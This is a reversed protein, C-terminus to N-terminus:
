PQLVRFVPDMGTRRRRDFISLLKQRGFQISYVRKLIPNHYVFANLRALASSSRQSPGEVAPSSRVTDRLEALDNGLFVVFVYAEPSGLEAHRKEVIDLQRNLSTGPVGLNVFRRPAGRALLNVFTEGDPVGIGFVFSDGVFPVLGGSHTADPVARGGLEDVDASHLYEYNSINFRSSPTFSLFQGNEKRIPWGRDTGLEQFEGARLESMRQRLWAPAMFRLALEIGSLAFTLGLTLAAIRFSWRKM